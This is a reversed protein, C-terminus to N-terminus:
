KKGKIAAVALLVGLVIGLVAAFLVRYNPPLMFTITHAPIWFMPITKKFVFSWMVGWNIETMIKGVQIPRFFGSVTGGNRIIHEDTIKHITMMVPAFITNMVASISFAGLLKLPTFDGKMTETTIGTGLYALFAPTGSAFVVFALNIFLGLVGWVMARPILGFGKHNYNGTRIRLGIAEGMTALIGFKIFSMVMGHEANFSKYAEFVTESIFFPSFFVVCGVLFKIDNQKMIEESEMNLPKETM